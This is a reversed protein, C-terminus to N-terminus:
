DVYGLARLAQLTEEDVGEGEVPAEAMPDTAKMWARLVARLRDSEEGGQLWLDNEERPDVVLDYVEYIEPHEDKAREPHYVLKWRDDQVSRWHVWPTNGEGAESFAYRFDARAPPEGSEARMLAWLSQGELPDLNAAPDLLERLTPYLDVLEVPREVRKGAAIRKPDFVFLPVQATSNYPLAGHGLYDHQGLSEGHDSTFVVMADDMLGLGDAHEMVERIHNDAVLINADYQALYYALEPREEVLHKKPFWDGIQPDLSYFEDGIFPNEMGDPLVFPGHPDIYHLWVFLREDEAHRELLPLALRNVAPAYVFKRFEIENKKSITAAAWSEAFDDFGGDWGLNASLVANGVVAVTTYGHEQFLEPITQDDAPLRVAAKHTLGTSQPYRGLFMSAMSTGTKPWQAITKEFVTGRAALSDIFPSTERPYGYCGLHDARLTDVTILFVRKPPGAPAPDSPGACSFGVVALM